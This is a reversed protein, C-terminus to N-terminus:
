RRGVLLGRRKPNSISVAGHFSVFPNVTVLHVRLFLCSLTVFAPCCSPRRRNKSNLNRGKDQSRIEFAASKPGSPPIIIAHYHNCLFASGIIENAIIRRTGLAGSAAAAGATTLAGGGAGIVAAAVGVRAGTAGSGETMEVGVGAGLGSLTGSVM